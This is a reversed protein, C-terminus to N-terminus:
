LSIYLVNNKETLASCSAHASDLLKDKDLRVKLYNELKVKMTRM